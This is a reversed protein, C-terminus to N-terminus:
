FGIKKMFGGEEPEEPFGIMRIGEHPNRIRQGQQLKPTGGLTVSMRNRKNDQINAQETPKPKPTYKIRLFQKREKM